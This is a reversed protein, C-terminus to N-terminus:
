GHVSGEFINDIKMITDCQWSCLDISMVEMFSKLETYTIKEGATKKLDYYYSLVHLVESDPEDIDLEAPKNKTMKYVQQLHELKTGTSRGKSDKIHKLL